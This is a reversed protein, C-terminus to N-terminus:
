LQALSFIQFKFRSSKLITSAIPNYIIKKLDGQIIEGEQWIERCDEFRNFTDKLNKIGLALLAKANNIGWMLCTDRTAM